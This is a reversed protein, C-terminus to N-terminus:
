YIFTLFCKGTEHIRGKALLLHYANPATLDFYKKNGQISKLRSFSCILKDDMVVISTKSIGISPDDEALLIPTNHGNPNYHHEVAVSNDLNVRCVCVCDEGMKDDYSFAFATYNATVSSIQTTFVFDIM